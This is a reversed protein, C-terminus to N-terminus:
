ARVQLVKFDFSQVNLISDLRELMIEDQEKQPLASLFRIVERMYFISQLKGYAKLLGLLNESGVDAEKIEKSLNTLHTILGCILTLHSGNKLDCLEPPFGSLECLKFFRPLFNPGIEDLQRNVERMVLTNVKDYYVSNEDKFVGNCSRHFHHKDQGLRYCALEKESKSKLFDPLLAIFLMKPLLHAIYSM